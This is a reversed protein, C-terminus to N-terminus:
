KLCRFKKLSSFYIGLEFKTELSSLIEPEFIFKWARFYKQARFDNELNSIVDLSSFQKLEDEFIIWTGLMRSFYFAMSSFCAVEFYKISDEFVKNLGRFNISALNSFLFQFEFFFQIISSFLCVFSSIIFEIRSFYVM